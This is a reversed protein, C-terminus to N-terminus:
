CVLALAREFPESATGDFKLLKLGGLCRRRVRRGGGTTSRDRAADHRSRDRSLNAHM